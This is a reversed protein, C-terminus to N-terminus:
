KEGISKMPRVKLHLNNQEVVEVVTGVELTEQASARWYTGAFQIKGDAPPLITETVVGTAHERDFATDSQDEKSEGLFVNRLFSRFFFLSALSTLIFIILQVSLSIDVFFITLAACWAGIGFFFVVFGPLALELAYFGIGVLFWLLVPSVPLHM